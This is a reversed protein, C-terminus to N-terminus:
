YGPARILMYNKDNEVKEEFVYLSSDVGLISLKLRQYYIIDVQANVATSLITSDVSTTPETSNQLVVDSGFENTIYLTKTTPTVDIVTYTYDSRNIKQRPEENVLSIFYTGSLELDRSAGPALTFTQKPDTMESYQIDADLSSNNKVTVNDVKMACSALIMVSAVLPIINKM